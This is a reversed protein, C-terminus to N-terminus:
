FILRITFYNYMEINKLQGLVDTKKVTLDNGTMLNSVLKHTLTM